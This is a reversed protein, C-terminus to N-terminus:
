KISSAHLVSYSCVTVPSYRIILSSYIYLMAIGSDSSVYGWFGMRFAASVLRDIRRLLLISLVDCHGGIDRGIYM